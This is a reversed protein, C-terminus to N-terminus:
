HGPNSVIRTSEDGCVAIVSPHPGEV